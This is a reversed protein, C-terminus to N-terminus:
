LSVSVSPVPVEPVGLCASLSMSLYVFVFRVDCLLLCCGGLMVDCLVCCVVCWGGDAHHSGFPGEGDLMQSEGGVFEDERM